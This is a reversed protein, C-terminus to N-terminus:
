TLGDLTERVRRALEMARYPKRIMKYQARTESKPSDIEDSFGSTLLIKVGPYYKPILAALDLGSIGGPMVIDSFLLDISPNNELVSLAADGNHACIM